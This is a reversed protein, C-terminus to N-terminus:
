SGTRMEVYEVKLPQKLQEELLLLNPQGEPIGEVMRGDPSITGTSAPLPIFWKKARLRVVVSGDPAVIMGVQKISVTRVFKKIGSTARGKLGEIEDFVMMDGFDLLRFRMVRDIMVKLPPVSDTDEYSFERPTSPTSPWQLTVNLALEPQRAKKVRSVM